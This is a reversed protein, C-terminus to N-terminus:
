QGGMLLSPIDLGHFGYHSLWRTDSEFFQRLDSAGYKLMALREIGVGFAFGQYVAPDVGVNKLVQPHVMGCGLIEMWGKGEGIRLEGKDKDHTCAIDVEASPETFPFFSPRFRLPVNKMEFFAEVFEQLCGRLHGMHINKDIYLGEMQHFMPTHTMDYDSRYVRGCAMIKFPPKGKMMTRIQVSSTHTRLLLATNDQKGHLYFTDQMARAPHDPPMNLATFNHFDDEIEPGSALEFGQRSFIVTLEEIVQSVPHISGQREPRPPLTIDVTEEQLKAQLAQTELLQKNEELLATIAEKVTNMEKGFSKREEPSLSALQRMKESLIGKKGLFKVRVAELAELSTASQIAHKSETLIGELTEM